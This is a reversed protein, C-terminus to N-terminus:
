KLYLKNRKTKLFEEFDTPNSKRKGNSNETREHKEEAFKKAADFAAEISGYKKVSFSLSNRLGDETWTFRYTRMDKTLSLGSIGTKNKISLRRNNQNKKYDACVRINEDTNNLGNGLNKLFYGSYM